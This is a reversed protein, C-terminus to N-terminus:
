FLFGTEVMATVQSDSNSSGFGVTGGNVKVYSLEGRVFANKFQYTPTITASWAKPATTGFGLLGQAGTEKIYELRAGVNFADSVAYNGLVAGGYTHGGGTYGMQNAGTGDGSPVYTYQLYPQITIPGKAYKYILNYVQSNAAQPTAAYPDSINNATTKDVNGGAAVSITNADNITYSASATLWKYDKTYFGDGYQVSISVPGKAYNAQVGRTFVNEQNWLLGRQINTNEFTFTYEVGLLTPLKGAQFSITDNPVLKIYATPVEGYTNSTYHSARIYSSGVVPVTYNGAEVFFQVPGDIKQLIVQANSIDAVSNHSVYGPVSSGSRNVGDNVGALASLAGSVYIKGISGGVDFSFPNASLALPYNMGPGNLVPAAPAAAAAAPADEAHAYSSLTALVALCVLSKKM